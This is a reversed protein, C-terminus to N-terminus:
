NQMLIHHLECVKALTPVNDKNKKIYRIAAIQNLILPSIERVKGQLIKLVHKEPTYLGEIGNSNYIFKAIWKKTLRM